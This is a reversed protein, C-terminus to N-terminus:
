EDNAEEMIVEVEEKLVKPQVEPNQLAIYRREWFEHYFHVCSKVLVKNHTHFIIINNNAM